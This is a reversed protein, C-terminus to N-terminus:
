LRISRVGSRSSNGIAAASSMPTVAHDGSPPPSSVPFYWRPPRSGFSARNVILGLHPARKRLSRFKLIASLTACTASVAPHM